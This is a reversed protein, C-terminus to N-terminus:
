NKRYRRRCGKSLRNVDGSIIIRGGKRILSDIERKFFLGLYTFLHSIEDKPRNWNETSFAYLSVVKIDREICADIIDILTELARKHGLHRPLGRKKAWRGNGDMIFAVHKLEKNTKYM